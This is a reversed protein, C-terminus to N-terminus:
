VGYCGAALLPVFVLNQALIPPAVRFGGVFAGIAGVIHVLPPYNTFHTFPYAVHGAEFEDHVNFAFFLHRGNDFDPVRRDVSLWWATIALFALVLLASLVVTPDVNRVGGGRDAPIAPVRSPAHQRSSQM